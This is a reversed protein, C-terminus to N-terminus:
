RLGVDEAQWGWFGELSIQFLLATMVTGSNFLCRPIYFLIAQFYLTFCVWQYYKHHRITLTSAKFFLQCHCLLNEPFYRHILIINLSVQYEGPRWGPPLELTHLMKALRPSWKARWGVFCVDIIWLFTHQNQEFHKMSQNRSLPISGVTPTWWTPPCATGWLATLQTAQTFKNWIQRKKESCWCLINFAISIWYLGMYQKATVLISATLLIIFTAQILYNWMKKKPLRVKYHLRFVNNDICLKDLKILGKVDGLLSFMARRCFMWSDCPTDSLICLTGLIDLKVFSALISWFNSFNKNEM